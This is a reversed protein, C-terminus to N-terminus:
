FALTHGFSCLFLKSCTEDKLGCVDQKEGWTCKLQVNTLDELRVVDGQEAFLHMVISEALEM